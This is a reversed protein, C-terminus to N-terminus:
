NISYSSVSNRGPPCLAFQREYRKSLIPFYLLAYIKMLEWIGKFFDVAKVKSGGKHLWEKLPYEVACHELPSGESTMQFLKFRALLEVDFTWKVRFPQLFIQKLVIGNRFIKAGCQTDYVQLGLVLSATTAFIRGLYHRFPKREIRRGLLKVRSGIVLEVTESELIQCFSGIAELPTSLDADWFGINRFNMEMAHLVGQRVAEAKGSNDPLHLAIM